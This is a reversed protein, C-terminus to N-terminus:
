CVIERGKKIISFNLFKKIILIKIKKLYVSQFILFVIIRNNTINTNINSLLLM